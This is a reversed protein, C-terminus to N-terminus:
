GAASLRAPVAAATQELDQLRQRALREVLEPLAPGAVIDLERRCRRVTRLVTGASLRPVFELALRDVTDALTAGTAAVDYSYVAITTGSPLSM